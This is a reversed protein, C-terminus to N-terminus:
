LVNRSFKCYLRLLIKGLLRHPVIGAYYLYSYFAYFNEEGFLWWVLGIISKVTFYVKILVKSLQKSKTKKTQKQADPSIKLIAASETENEEYNNFINKLCDYAVEISIREKEPCLLKSILDKFQTPIKSLDFIFESPCEYGFPPIGQNFMEYIIMGLEWSHQLKCPLNRQERIAQSVEPSLHLCNGALVSGFAFGNEDFKGAHGFDIIVLDDNFSIMINDAKVDLHVINNNYLFLLASSLQYSYKVIQHLSLTEIVSQLTTRYAEVIYFQHKKKTQPNNHEFCLDRISEHVNGIMENSPISIFSGYKCVINPHQIDDSLINFENINKRHNSGSIELGYFEMLMKLAVRFTKNELHFDCSMVLGDCGNGVFKINSFFSININKGIIKRKIKLNKATSAKYKMKQFKVNSSHKFDGNFYPSLISIINEFGIRRKPKSNWCSEIMQIIEESIDTPLDDISPRYGKIIQEAMNNDNELEYFPNKGSLLQWLLIGFSYVDIPQSYPITSSGKLAEPATYRFNDDGFSQFYFPIGIVCRGLDGLKAHISNIENTSHEDMSFILINEPKINRHILKMGSKLFLINMGRAIDFAIKLKLTSSCAKIEEFCDALSGFPPKEVIMLIQHNLYDEKSTLGIMKNSSTELKTRSYLLDETPFCIGILKLTFENEIRKLLVIENLLPKLNEFTISIPEAFIVEEEIKKALDRIIGVWVFNNNIKNLYKIFEFHFLDSEFVQIDNGCIYKRFDKFKVNFNMLLDIETGIEQQQNNLLITKDISSNSNVYSNLAEHPSQFIIHFFFLSYFHNEEEKPHYISIKLVPDDEGENNEHQDLQIFIHFNRSNYNGGEESFVYFNNTTSSPHIEMGPFHLIRVILREIFGFPIRPSFIYKRGIFQFSKGSIFEIRSKIEHKFRDLNNTRSRIMGPVYYEGSPLKIILHFMEFVLLLGKKMNKEEIHKAHFNKEIEDLTFYGRKHKPSSHLPIITNFAGTVFEGM